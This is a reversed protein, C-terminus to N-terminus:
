GEGRSASALVGRSLRLVEGVSWAQFPCGRPAHPPDGDAIESVHELGASDLHHVLPELFRRRAERRAAAGGGRVRVWAEVFPGLLWPWATGQHYAGDRAAVDGQYRPRYGPDAPDLTRLGLPTLLREEVKDVIARARAGDLVPFPLGGVALIQNPRLAPDSEGPRGEVDVVDFLYGGDAHWFRDQFAALARRHPERFRDSWATAIRLTNIWLAEIEVPKGARPTVPRGGVRADMWTPQSGPRGIALLGDEAVRQDDRAGDFAATLITEITRRLTAADGKAPRRGLSKMAGLWDHAAIAFWLSVDAGGFDPAGGGREPFTNPLRGDSLTGAWEILIARAADLRGTSLCLGRLAIFTDRGWDTFWPYGAVITRGAGRRVVYADAARHLRTPFQARRRRERVRLARALATAGTAPSVGPSPLGAELILCAEGRSLDFDFRGPSALDELHDLGRAREEAYLFNRYWHPARTFRGNAAAAIAPVGPYPRWVLRGDHSEEEFRFAANERHLAHHDRGSLFPRVTLTVGARAAGLRWTVSVVPRDHAAVVAHDIATGDPLVFRWRPWPEADFRKLHLRGDPHVVGPAFAEASLPFVGAPTTVWAEVANVLVFRGTPPTAASVLLAHYRRTRVLGVTGSAYGGLGDTELWESELDPRM